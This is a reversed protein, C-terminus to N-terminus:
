VRAAFARDIWHVLREMTQVCEYASRDVAPMEPLPQRNGAPSVPAGKVDAKPPNLDNPRSPSGAGAELRKLLSTFGHKSLFAALPEPPIGDLRFEELAMPLACDEKLQVLERSLLAMERGEILRERLKSPK